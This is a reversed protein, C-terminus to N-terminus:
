APRASTVPLKLTTTRGSRSARLRLTYKGPKLGSIRVTYTRAAKRSRLKLAHKVVKKGKLVDIRVRAGKKLRFTVTLTKTFTPCATRFSRLLGRAKAAKAKCPTAKPAPRKVPPAVLPPTGAIPGRSQQPPAAPADGVPVGDSKHGNGYDFQGCKQTTTFSVQGKMDYAGQAEPGIGDGTLSDVKFSLCGYNLVWNKGDEGLYNDTHGAGSDSYADGAKFAADDLNPTDSGPEPRADLPTQAPPDDTGVNGYGHDEDTYALLVGPAFTLDGRDSEGQSHADFGSRDRMELLYAHEAPSNQDAAVYQWGHTCKSATQLGSGNCGGNFLAPDNAQEFDSSYIVKDDAKIQLDDIFWGPRALGPDTAYTFRVTAGPKGILDSLDYEDDVFTPTGYNGALRDVTQTGAAYSASSGTLGNNYKTQCASGNPNTTSSYGKASAYSKYTKSDTTSLVFGYDFDWEMDFRSKFTLTLKQTGAPVAPLAVDLNHGAEPPCGFDNGSGSWWLHTGSPVTAPDILRRGPLNAVYAEGNHVSPGTLTYPTGDARKWDIRGTDKKTDEWGAAVKTGPELVRPVLWGLEKKGIVDINQSYDTAMLTWAGYTERSGTSYYDPLGLSHGYEHSIVSAHAIATEPNVNYPGVRTYVPIGTNNTTKESRTADTWFLPRGELDHSQDKSVYGKEGNADTYAGQLDSSHPWINDYPPFGNLQSDGNGGKGPFVMMFFDVVGDKDTDYDDYDIEDDAIAAADYVAKGTPGCGSDIDQLAGVGTLAGALASGKGDLGYYTTDGPLQYWGNSIRPGSTYTGLTAKTDASCVPNTAKTFGYSGTWGATAIGDSPVTAHPFLQGYSIEQYLNFTSGPNAPDNIKTALRDATSNVADHPRDSFDVPVVPFPRDGYRATEFGGDPPIVKPGHSTAEVNGLKATASLNKWIIEPDQALTDATAEIVKFAIGPTGDVAKAPVTPVNWSTEAFTTGDPPTITVQAGTLPTAEYNLVRLTFPYKEGPKVWGKSSVFDNELVVGAPPASVSVTGAQAGDATELRLVGRYFNDASVRANKTVSAPITGSVRGDAGATFPGLPASRAGDADVARLSFTAGPESVRGSFAAPRGAEVPAAALRATLPRSGSAGTSSVLFAAAFAAAAALARHM